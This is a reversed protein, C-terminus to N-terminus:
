GPPAHGSVAHQIDAALVAVSHRMDIGKRQSADNLLPWVQDQILTSFETYYPTVPRPITKGIAQLIKPGITLQRGTRHGCLPSDTVADYGPVQYGQPLVSAQAYASQRTAPYGGVAFLCREAQASTLFRIVELAAQPHPSGASIALDAGGLVSPFPLPAVDFNGAVQGSGPLTATAVRNFYIPWNRMFVAKGTAFATFSQVESGYLEAGPIQGGLQDVLQQLGDAVAAPDRITGDPGFADPRYGRIIELLNVTLGEYAAFQGTYGETIAPDGTRAQQAAQMVQGFTRLQSVNERVLDTRYYLLGVDTTLPAAYLRGAPDRGSALPQPLFGSTDLHGDLLRIYGAAAFEPVWESDLNYIDYGVGDAQADALMESHDLTASGGSIMQLRVRIGTVPAEHVNWWDTLESYMGTDGSRVPANGASISADAGSLITVTVPGTAPAPWPGTGPAATCGAPGAVACAVGAVVALLAARPSRPPTPRKTIV